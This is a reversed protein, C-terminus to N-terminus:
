GRSLRTVAALLLRAITDMGGAEPKASSEIQKLERVYNRQEAVWATNDFQVSTWHSLSKLGM